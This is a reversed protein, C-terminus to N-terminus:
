AAPSKGAQELLFLDTLLARLHVSANLNDVLLSPVTIVVRGDKKLLRGSEKAIASKEQMHEITALLVVADFSGDEFPMGPRFEQRLFRHGGDETKGQYLPDLGVSPAIKQGLMKIFEGQHCGIDLIRSGEQIWPAAATMRWRQILYDGIRMKGRGAMRM